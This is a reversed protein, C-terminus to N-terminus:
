ASSSPGPRVRMVAAWVRSPCHIDPKGAVICGGNWRGASGDKGDVGRLLFRVPDRRELNVRGRRPVRPGAPQAHDPRPPSSTPSSRLRSPSPLIRSVPAGHRRKRDGGRARRPHPPPWGPPPGASTRAPVPPTLPWPHEAPCTNSADQAARDAAPAHQTPFTRPLGYPSSM